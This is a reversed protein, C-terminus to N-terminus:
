ARPPAASGLLPPSILGAHGFTGRAYVNVGDQIVDEIRAVVRALVKDVHLVALTKQIAGLKIDERAIEIGVEGLEIPLGLKRLKKKPLRAKDATAELHDILTRIERKTKPTDEEPSPIKM